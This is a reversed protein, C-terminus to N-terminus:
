LCKDIFDRLAKANSFKLDQAIKNVTGPALDRGGAHYDLKCRRYIGDNGMGGYMCGGKRLPTMNFYRFVKLIDSSTATVGM